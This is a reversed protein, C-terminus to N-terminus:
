DENKMDRMLTRAEVDSVGAIGLRNSVAAGYGGVLAVNSGGPFIKFYYDKGSAINATLETKGFDLPHDVVLRYQGAPRDIHLYTGIGLSGVEKDNVTVRVPQGAGIIADPRIFYIRAAGSARLTDQSELATRSTCATLGFCLLIFGLFFRSLKVSLAGVLALSLGRRNEYIRKALRSLDDWGLGRIGIGSM